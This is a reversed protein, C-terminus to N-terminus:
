SLAEWNAPGLTSRICRILGERIRLLAVRVAGSAMGLESGIEDAHREDWYRRRLMQQSRPPLQNICRRLAALLGPSDAWASTAEPQAEFLQDVLAVYRKAQSARWHTHERVVNRAIGRLFRGFDELDAIRDLRQLARVFVEQSLDDVAGVDACLAAVYGRLQRHHRRVLEAVAEPDRQQIQALTVSPQGNVSSGGM